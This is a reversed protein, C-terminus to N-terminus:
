WGMGLATALRGAAALLSGPLLGAMILLVLLAAGVPSFDSKGAGAAPEAYMREVERGAVLLGPPLLVLTGVAALYGAGGGVQLGAAVLLLWGWFGPLLPMGALALMACARTFRGFGSHHTGQPILWVALAALVGTFVLVAFAELAQASGRAGALGLAVVALGAEGALAGRVGRRGGAGVATAAATLALGVLM